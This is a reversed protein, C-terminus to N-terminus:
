FIGLFIDVQRSLVLSVRHVILTVDYNTKWGCFKFSAFLVGEDIIEWSMLHGSCGGM